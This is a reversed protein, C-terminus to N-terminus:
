ECGGMAYDDRGVHTRSEERGFMTLRGENEWSQFQAQMKDTKIPSPLMMGTKGILFYPVHKLWVNEIDSSLVDAQQYYTM